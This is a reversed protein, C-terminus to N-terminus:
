GCGSVPCWCQCMCTCLCPGVKGQAIYDAFTCTFVGCDICNTQRPVGPPAFSLDWADVDLPVKKKDMSEDNLYRSM